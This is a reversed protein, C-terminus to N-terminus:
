PCWRRVLEGLDEFPEIHIGTGALCHSIAARRRFDSDILAIPQHREM